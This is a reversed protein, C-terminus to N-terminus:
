IFLVKIFKCVRLSLEAIFTECWKSLEVTKWKGQKVLAQVAINLMDVPQLVLVTEIDHVINPALSKISKGGLLFHSSYSFSSFPRLVSRFINEIESLMKQRALAHPNCQQALIIEEVKSKLHLSSTRTECLKRSIPVNGEMLQNQFKSLLQVRYAAIGQHQILNSIDENSMNKLLQMWNKYGDSGRIDCLFRGTQINEHLQLIHLSNRVPVKDYFSYLNTHLFDLVGMYTEVENIFSGGIEKKVNQVPNTFIHQFIAFRICKKMFPVSFNDRFFSSRLFKLFEPELRFDTFKPSLMVDPVLADFVEDPVAFSFSRTYM